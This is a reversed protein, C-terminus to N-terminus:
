RISEKRHGAETIGEPPGTDDDVSTATTDGAGPAAATPATSFSAAPESHSSESCPKSSTNSSAVTATRTLSLNVTNRRGPLASPEETSSRAANTARKILHSLLPVAHLMVCTSAAPRALVRESSRKGPQHGSGLSTKWGRFPGHRGWAAWLSSERQSRWTSSKGPPVQAISEARAAKSFARYIRLVM